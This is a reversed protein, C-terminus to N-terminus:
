RAITQMLKATQRYILRKIAYDSDTLDLDPGYLNLLMDRQISPQKRLQQM